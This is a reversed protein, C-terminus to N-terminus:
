IFGLIERLTSHEQLIEEFKELLPRLWEDRMGVLCDYYMIGQRFLSHQRKKSTNAKFKMDLGTAEGAAGLLTVLAMAAASILLVRDRRAPNGIRSHLLGLGFRPDKADRFTEEITFRRSYLTVAEQAKVESDSVALCWAEKMSQERKVVVGPVLFKEETVAANQILKARGNAPVWANATKAEGSSDTVRINGRFRIIFHFGLEHLRAYLKTDGFGRDALVTVDCGAPVTEKLRDLLRYEYENRNNKLDSQKVTMWVLPTARGHRTIMNLALTSQKDDAFETWDMAVVIKPRSSVVFPVWRSFLEWVDVGANSVLRDVQKIAHKSQLLMAKALGLGIAHVAVASAHLCGNVANALSLVRKAHLDEGFVSDVFTLVRAAKEHSTKM